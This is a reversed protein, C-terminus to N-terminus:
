CAQSCRGNTRSAASGPATNCRYGTPCLAARVGAFDGIIRLRDVSWSFIEGHSIVINQAAHAVHKIQAIGSHHLNKRQRFTLYGLRINLRPQFFIVVGRITGARIHQHPIKQIAQNKVTTTFAFLRRGRRDLAFHIVINEHLFQTDREIQFRGVNRVHQLACVKGHRLRFHPRNEALGVM